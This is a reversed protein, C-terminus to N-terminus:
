DKRCWSIRPRRTLVGSALLIHLGAVRIVFSSLQTDWSNIRNSLQPSKTGSFAVIM